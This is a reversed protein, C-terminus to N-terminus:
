VVHRALLHHELRPGRVVVRHSNVGYPTCTVLTVFDENPDIMWPSVDDPTVTISKDIEYTLTNDLVQKMFTDGI